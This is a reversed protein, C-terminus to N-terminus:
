SFTVETGYTLARAESTATDTGRRLEVKILDGAAVAVANIEGITSTLDFEVSQPINVTGAGLTVAANTSTRQNTTSNIATVAPKILTSITQLLVTGSADPSYFPMKLKIQSGASYTSPVRVLAYLVQSDGATYFYTQQNNEVTPIPANADEVWRLSGGGGGAGAQIWAAGTDVFLSTRDTIWAMRGANGFAPKGAFTYNEVRSSLQNLATSLTGEATVDAGSLLQLVGVAGRHLRINDAATGSNGLIMKQDNRLLARWLTGDDLYSRGLVTDWYFRGTVGVTPAAALNEFQARELQSSVKM